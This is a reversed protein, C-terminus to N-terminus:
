SVHLTGKTAGLYLLIDIANCGAPVVASVSGTAEVPPACRVNEYVNDNVITVSMFRLSFQVNAGQVDDVAAVRVTEGAAVPITCVGGVVLNVHPSETVSCLGRLPIGAPYRQHTGAVYTFTQEPVAQIAPLALLAAALMPLVIRM